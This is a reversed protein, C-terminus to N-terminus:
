DWLIVAYLPYPVTLFFEANINVNAGGGCCYKSELAHLDSEILGLQAHCILSWHLILPVSVTVNFNIFDPQDYPQLNKLHITTINFSLSFFILSSHIFTFIFNM